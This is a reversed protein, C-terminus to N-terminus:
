KDIICPNISSVTYRKPRLPGPARPPEFGGKPVLILLCKRRLPMPAKKNERELTVVELSRPGLRKSEARCNVITSHVGVAEELDESTYPPTLWGKGESQWFGGLRGRRFHGPVLLL